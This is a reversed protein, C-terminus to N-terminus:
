TIELLYLLTKLKKPSFFEREQFLLLKILTAKKRKNIKKTSLFDGYSMYFSKKPPEMKGLILFVKKSFIYSLEVELFVLTKRLTNKKWKRSSPFNDGSIYSTKEYYEWILSRAKYCFYRTIVMPINFMKKIGWLFSNGKMEFSFSKKNVQM